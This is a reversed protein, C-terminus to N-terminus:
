EFDLNEIDLIAEAGLARLKKKIQKKGKVISGRDAGLQPNLIMTAHNLHVMYHSLEDSPLFIMRYGNEVLKKHMIKGAVDEQDSFRLQYRAILDMRYLACHSRLYYFKERKRKLNCSKKPALQIYTEEICSELQKLLKKFFHKYELKWSGVGAVDEASTLRTLLLDLWGTHKVFTDTHMSLVFPTEVLELGIDLARAHALAPTEGQKASREVLKIFSLTRLYEVSEDCSDNDIVIVQVRKMDTYKRILGLCLKTIKLTKYNPLLITIEATTM